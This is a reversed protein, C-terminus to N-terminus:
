LNSCILRDPKKKIKKKNAGPYSSSITASIVFTSCAAVSAMSSIDKRVPINSENGVPDHLVFINSEVVFKAQETLPPMLLAAPRLSDSGSPPRSMYVVPRSSTPGMAERDLCFVAERLFLLYAERYQKNSAAYVVFNFSYQMWYFSSLFHRIIGLDIDFIRIFVVPFNCLLYCLCIICITKTMRKDRASLQHKM